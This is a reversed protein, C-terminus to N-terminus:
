GGVSVGLRVRAAAPVALILAALAADVRVLASPATAATPETRM